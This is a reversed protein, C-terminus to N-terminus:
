SMYLVVSFYISIPHRRSSPVWWRPTAIPVRCVSSSAHLRRIKRSSHCKVQCTVYLYLYIPLPAYVQYLAEEYHIVAASASLYSV